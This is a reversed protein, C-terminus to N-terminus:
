KKAAPPDALSRLYAILDARDAANALGPYSMKTGPVATGPSKLFVGLREISWPTHDAALVGTYSYGPRAARPRGVVGWLNPGIKDPGGKSLDHCLQCDRALVKGHAADAGPLLGAVEAAPAAAPDTAPEATAEVAFGPTKPPPVKFVAQAIFMVALIFLLVGLVGGAIKNWEWLDMLTLSRFFAADTDYATKRRIRVLAFFSGTFLSM